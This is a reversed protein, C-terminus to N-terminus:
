DQETQSAYDGLVDLVRCEAVTGGECVTSIRVLEDRLRELRAIKANVNALHGAAIANVEACDRDPQDSLELLSRTEGTEFGLERAHRIFRLRQLDANSYTRRGSSTRSARRLLGIDEYFRITNVKTGTARALDGIMLTKSM